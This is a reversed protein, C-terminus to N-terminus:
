EMWIDGWFNIVTSYPGYGKLKKSYANYKSQHWLHVYHADEYAIKVCKQLVDGRKAADLTSESDKLCADYDKSCWEAFNASGGCQMRKALVTYPDPLDVGVSYTTAQVNHARIKAAWAIREIPDIITRIGVKDLMSKLVESQPLDPQRAVVTLTVDLGNPNGADKMSQQAKAFDYKYQPLSESYGAQGEFIMSANPLRGAGQGIAKAVAERDIAYQAALRLNKNDMFPGNSQALGLVRLDGGWTLDELVLDSASRVSALDKPAIDTQFQFNGTKLEVLAVTSDAIFRMELGDLYPKPQGDVGKQWYNPFKKLVQRDGQRWDSLQFPGTGVIHNALYDEGNKDIAAKSTMMPRSLSSTIYWLQAVSPGKLNLKITGADVVDITAINDVSEKSMSKPHDRMRLLNWKAVEANFESGDHFTVGKQLKMVITKPDTQEWSAALLPSLDFRKTKDNWRAELLAESHMQPDGRTLQVLHPDGLGFDTNLSTRVVGGRKVKPAAPATPAATAAAAAPKTAVGPATTAAPAVTAAPPAAPKAPTPAATPAACATSLLALLVLLIVARYCFRM